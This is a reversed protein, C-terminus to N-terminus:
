LSRSRPALPLRSLNPPSRSLTFYFPSPSLVYFLVASRESASSGGRGPLQTMPSPSIRSSFRESECVRPRILGETPDVRNIVGALYTTSGPFRESPGSGSLGKNIQNCGSVLARM